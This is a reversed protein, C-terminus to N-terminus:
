CTGSYRCCERRREKMGDLEFSIKSACDNCCGGGGGGVGGSIQAFSLQAATMVAVLVM